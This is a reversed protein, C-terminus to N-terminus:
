GGTIEKLSKVRLTSGWEKSHKHGAFDALKVDGARYANGAAKGLIADQAAPDLDAFQASGMAIAVPQPDERLHPVATCRGNPHDDLRESLAHLTGHQAWCAACTRPTAASLWIWGDVTQGNAQYAQYTMERYARLTETRSIRLARVLDGGLDQKIARAIATPNQGLAVGSLLEDRVARGAAPGLEDLLKRLPSGDATFGVLNALADTPLRNWQVQMAPLQAARRRVLEESDALAADVARAQQRQILPDAFEAFTRIEAETQMQLAQLRGHQWLWSEDVQVGLREAANRAALLEDLQGRIRQWIVGYARVMESAAQREGRILAARQQQAIEYIRGPGGAM